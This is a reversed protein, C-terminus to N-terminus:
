PPSYALRRKSPGDQTSLTAHRQPFGRGMLKDIRDVHGLGRAADVAAVEHHAEECVCGGDCV